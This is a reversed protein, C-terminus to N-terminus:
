PKLAWTPASASVASTSSIAIVEALMLSPLTGPDSAIHLALVDRRAMSLEDALVGSLGQAKAAVKAPDVLPASGDDGQGRHRRPEEWYGPEVTPTGDAGIVVFQTTEAVDHTSHEFVKVPVGFDAAIKGAEALRNLARLRRGGAFIDFFGCKKAAGGILNQLVGNAEINAVLEDLNDEAGTKRVNHASLRLKNLPIIQISM